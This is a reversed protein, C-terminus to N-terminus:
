YYVAPLVGHRRQAYYSERVGSPRLNGGPPRLRSLEPIDEPFGLLRQFLPMDYREALAIIGIWLMRAETEERGDLGLLRILRRSETTLGVIQGDDCAASITSLYRRWGGASPWCRKSFCPWDTADERKDALGAHLPTIRAVAKGNLEVVSGKPDAPLALFFQRVPEAHIMLDFRKM